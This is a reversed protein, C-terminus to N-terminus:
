YIVALIQALATGARSPRFAGAKAQSSAAKAQEFALGRSQYTFVNIKKM